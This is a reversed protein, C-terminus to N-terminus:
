VDDGRKVEVAYTMGCLLGRQFMARLSRSRHLRRIAESQRMQEGYRMAKGELADSVADAAAVGSAISSDVGQLSAMNMVGMAEGVM